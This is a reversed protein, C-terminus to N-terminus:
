KGNVNKVSRNILKLSKSYREYIEIRKNWLAEIEIIATFYPGTGNSKRESYLEEVVTAKEQALVEKLKQGIKTNVAYYFDEYHGLPSGIKNVIEANVNERFFTREEIEPSIDFYSNLPEYKDADRVGEIVKKFTKGLRKYARLKKDEGTDSGCKVMLSVYINRLIDNFLIISVHNDFASEFTEKTSLFAFVERSIGARVEGTKENRSGYKTKYDEYTIM